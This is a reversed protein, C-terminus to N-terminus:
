HPRGGNFGGRRRSKMMEQVEKTKETMIVDFESQSVEKGGKPPKIAIKDKTNLEVKSCLITLQGTKVELILGPLGWFKDPGQNVPIDLTFWAIVEVEKIYDERKPKKKENNSRGFPVEPMVIQKITSKAKICSYNGIMKMEDTLEWDFVNLSDVILFPKGYVDRKNTFMKSESDKYYEGSSQNFMAKMMAMRGQHAGSMEEEVEEVESYTSTNVSFKLEFENTSMDNMHKLMRAKREEPIQRQSLDINVKSKAMYTAKGSVIQASSGCIMSVLLTLLFMMKTNM